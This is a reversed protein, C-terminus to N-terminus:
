CIACGLEWPRAIGLLRSGNFILMVAYRPCRLGKLGCDVGINVNFNCIVKMVVIVRM